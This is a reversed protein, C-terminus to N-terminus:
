EAPINFILIKFTGTSSGSTMTRIINITTNSVYAIFDTGMNFTAPNQGEPLTFSFSGTQGLVNNGSVQAWLIFPIFGMSSGDANLNVSGSGSSLTIEKIAHVSSSRLDTSDFILDKRDASVVNSGPKSVFLGYDSGRKGLLVRNAM